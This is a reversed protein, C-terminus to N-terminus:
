AWYWAFYRGIRHKIIWRISPFNGANGAYKGFAVLRQNSGDVMLEYDTLKVKKDLVAKLLPRNHAQGKHTHSFFFFQKNKILKDIPVEKIGLVIDAQTL